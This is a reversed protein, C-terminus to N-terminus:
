INEELVKIIQQKEEANLQDNVANNTANLKICDIIIRNQKEFRKCLYCIALHRWLHFQQV